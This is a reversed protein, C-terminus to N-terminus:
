IHYWINTPLRHYKISELEHFEMLFLHNMSKTPLVQSLLTSVEGRMNEKRSYLFM